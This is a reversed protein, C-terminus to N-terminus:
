LLVHVSDFSHQHFTALGQGTAFVLVFTSYKEYQYQAMIIKKM